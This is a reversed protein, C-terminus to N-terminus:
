NLLVRGQNDITLASQQSSFNNTEDLNVELMGFRDSARPTVLLLGGDQRYIPISVPAPLERLVIEQRGLLTRPPTNGLVQYTIPANTNNKLMINVKGATLGVNAAVQTQNEPLPLQVVSNLRNNPNTRNTLSNSEPVQRDVNENPPISAQPRCINQALGPAALVMPVVSVIAGMIVTSRSLKKLGLQHIKIM